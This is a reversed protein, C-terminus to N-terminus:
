GRSANIDSFARWDVQVGIAVGGILVALKRVASGRLCLVKEGLTWLLAGRAGELPGYVCLHRDPPYRLAIYLLALNPQVEQLGQEDKDCSAKRDRYHCSTFNAACRLIVEGHYTRSQLTEETKLSAAFSSNHTHLSFWASAEM